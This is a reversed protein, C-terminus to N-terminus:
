ATRCYKSSLGCSQGVHRGQDRGDGVRLGRAAPPPVTGASGGPRGTGGLVRRAAPLPVGAAGARGTTIRRRNTIGGGPLFHAQTSYGPSTARGWSECFRVQPGCM